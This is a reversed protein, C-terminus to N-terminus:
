HVKTSRVADLANGDGVLEVMTCLAVDVLITKDVVFCSDAVEMVDVVLMDLAVSEDFENFIESFRAFATPPPTTPPNNPIMM